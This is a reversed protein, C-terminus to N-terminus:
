RLAELAYEVGVDLDALGSATLDLDGGPDFVRRHDVLDERLQLTL